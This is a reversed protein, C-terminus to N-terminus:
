RSGARDKRSRPSDPRISSMRVIGTQNDTINAADVYGEASWGLRAGGLM